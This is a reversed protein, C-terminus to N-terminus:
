LRASCILRILHHMAMLLLQVKTTLCKAPLVHYGESSAVHFRRMELVSALRSVKDCRRRKNDHM